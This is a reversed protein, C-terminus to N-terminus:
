RFGESVAGMMALLFYIVGIALGSGFGAWAWNKANRSAQLAGQIDGAQLKPNVQAAYVISVIGFPMCCCLTVLIAEVLHNQVTQPMPPPVNAAYAGPMPNGCNGCNLAGEQNWTGCNTCYM